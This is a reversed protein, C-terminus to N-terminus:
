TVEVIKGFDTGALQSLAKEFSPAIFSYAFRAENGLKGFHAIEGGHIIRVDEKLESLIKLLLFTFPQTEEVGGAAPLTGRSIIVLGSVLADTVADNELAIRAAVGMRASVEEASDGHIQVIAFAIYGSQLM